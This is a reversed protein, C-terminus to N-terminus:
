RHPSIGAISAIKQTKKDSITSLKKSSIKSHSAQSALVPKEISKVKSNKQAVKAKSSKALKSVKKLALEKKAVVGIKKPELKIKSSNKALLGGKQATVKKVAAPVSKKSLETVSKGKEPNVETKAFETSVAQVSLVQSKQPLDMKLENKAMNELRIPSKLSAVELSLRKNEDQLQEKLTIERNISYGLNVIQIRSWIYFLSCFFVVFVLALLYYFLVGKVREVKASTPRVRFRQSAGWTSSAVSM